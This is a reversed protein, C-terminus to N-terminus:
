AKKRRYGIFLGASVIMMSSWAIVWADTGSSDSTGGMGTKPMESPMEAEFDAPHQSVIAGSLSEGVGFMHGYAERMQDYAMDYDGATYSDFSGTLQDVHMQLGQALNDANLEGETATELFKSFEMRYDDLNSMAQEKAEEDGAEAAEVYDVFYGIHEEWMMKFDSEAQEGYVSGIQAALDETNGQLAAAANEFDEAGDGGKQMALVALAAHESLTHNLDARLDAAPTAPNTNEFDEPFQNTVATSLGKGVGYMHEMSDRLDSYAEEYNGAEYNDFSGILQNVHMQLGEALASAELRENTATELFESFDARYNDLANLAEEQAADNDEASANVYDVFYGIHESWMSNFQEGAEEGYVSAIAGTLDETNDELASAAADFDEAGDIGKQMTLVALYAHESLYQDLTARLDAAPTSVSPGMEEAKTQTKAEEGHEAALGPAAPVMIAAALPIMTMTRKLNM